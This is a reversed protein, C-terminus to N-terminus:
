TKYYHYYPLPGYQKSAEQGDVGVCGHERECATCDDRMRYMAALVCVHHSVRVRRSGQGLRDEERCVARQWAVRRSTIGFHVLGV